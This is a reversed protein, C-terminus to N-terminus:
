FAEGVGIYFTGGDKGQAVDLRFNIPNDRAIRFRLGAGASWLLDDATLSGVDPAVEGVGAFAAVALWDNLMHRWEGQTALMLKDRYKGAEYGRLDNHQGFMSLDFFPVNGDVTRGFGRLALVDKKSLSLYHNYEAEYAQYNFDSGFAENFIDITVNMFRGTTPYFTNDRTDWQLKGGLAITRTEAQQEPLTVFQNQSRVSANIELAYLRPGIYFNPAIRGLLQL